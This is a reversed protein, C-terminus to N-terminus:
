LKETMEKKGQKSKGKRGFRGKKELKTSKCATPSEKVRRRHTQQAAGGM